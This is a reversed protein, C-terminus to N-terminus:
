AFRQSLLGLLGAYLPDCFAKVDGKASEWSSAWEVFCQDSATVPAVRARGVYGSVMDAALVDPGDNISYAFTRSRDDLELLTERIAGNIIRVAGIESASKGNAPEVSEVIGTAWDMNYFDRLVAWVEDASANVVTSNYTGM